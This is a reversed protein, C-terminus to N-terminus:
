KRGIQFICSTAGRNDPTLKALQEVEEGLLDELIHTDIQCLEPHEKIIARYPCHGLILRPAFVHAEWRAHYDRKNLHQITDYLRQSLNSGRRGNNAPPPTLRQAIRKLYNQHAGPSLRQEAEALLASSLQDLNNGTIQGSTSFVQAPRGKGEKPRQGIIKVSGQEQLIALHHRANAPTMRLAQSIDTATVARQSEIYELIRQRTTKM